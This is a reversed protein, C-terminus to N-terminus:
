ILAVHSYPCCAEAANNWLLENSTPMRIRLYEEDDVKSGSKYSEGKELSQLDSIQSIIWLISTTCGMIEDVEGQSHDHSFNANMMQFLHYFKMSRSLSVLSILRSDFWASITNHDAVEWM